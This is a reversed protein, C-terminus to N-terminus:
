DPPTMTYIYKVRPNVEKIKQLTQSIIEYERTQVGDKNLPVNKLLDADIMLGATQAIVMLRERLTNLQFDLSFKYILANSLAVVVVMSLFVAITVKIQFRRFLFDMKKM